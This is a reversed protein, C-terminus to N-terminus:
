SNIVVKCDTVNNLVWVVLVHVIIDCLTAHMCNILILICQLLPWEITFIDTLHMTFM